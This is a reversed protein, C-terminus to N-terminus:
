GRRRPSRSGRRSSSGELTKALVEHAEERRDTLSESAVTVRRGWMWWGLVAGVTILFATLGFAQNATRASAELERRTEEEAEALLQEHQFARDALTQAMAQLRGMRQEHREQAVKLQLTYAQEFEENLWRLQEEEPRSTLEDPISQMFGFGGLPLTAFLAIALVWGKATAKTTKSTVPSESPKAYCDHRMQHRM